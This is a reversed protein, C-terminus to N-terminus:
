APSPVPNIPQIEEYATRWSTEVFYFADRITVTYQVRLVRKLNRDRERLPLTDVLNVIEILDDAMIRKRHEIRTKKFKFKAATRRDVMKSGILMVM